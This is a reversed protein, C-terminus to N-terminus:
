LLYTVKKGLVVFSRFMILWDYRNQVILNDSVKHNDNLFYYGYLKGRYVMYGYNSVYQIGPDTDTEPTDWPDM